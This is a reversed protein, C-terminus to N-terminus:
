EPTSCKVLNTVYSNKIIKLEKLIDVFEKGTGLSANEGGFACMHEKFRRYSPNLGVFFYKIESKGGWGILKGYGKDYNYKNFALNCIDCSDCRQIMNDLNVKELFINDKLKM